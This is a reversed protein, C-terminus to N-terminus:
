SFCKETMVAQVDCRICPLQPSPIGMQGKPCLSILLLTNFFPFTTGLYAIIFLIDKCLVFHERSVHIVCNQLIYNFIMLSFDHSSRM